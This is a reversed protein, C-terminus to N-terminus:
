GLLSVHHVGLNTHAHIYPTLGMPHPDSAGIPRDDLLKCDGVGLFAELLEEIPDLFMPSFEIKRHSYGHFPVVPM